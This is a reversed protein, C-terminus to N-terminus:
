IGAIASAVDWAKQKLGAGSGWLLSSTRASDDGAGTDRTSRHYDVYEVVANFAGWATGRASPLTAGKGYEFCRTVDDIINQARTTMRAEDEKNKPALGVNVLYSKWADRTLQTVALKRAAEEFISFRSNIIGLEEQVDKVRMGMSLTHRISSKKSASSVAINLTNQCVVRIPTFMVQVAGTGDHKNTLLLFKEATDDGMVHISGPLKALLWIAEGKGLAGATHYIAEKVGVIADFFSFAEKNQLVKYVSGVSGLIAQSDDRVTAFLDPVKRNDPLGLYVPEKRVTWNLGAATIAEASTAAAPIEKGLKHWPRAGYYMMSNINASM